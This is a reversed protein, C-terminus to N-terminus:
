VAHQQEAANAVLAASKQDLIQVIRNSKASLVSHILLLPIAVVLGVVTTILALSIGGSMLRPDGTGFLTITQFTKIIGIVTGLLGLLPAIAAMLSLAGLGRQIAPLERLIAEDLRLGLAEPDNTARQECAMLIRGLPNNVNPNIDQLQRRVQRGVISLALLREISIALGIVGLGIIVYGVVGGQQLRTLLDPTQGVLELLAGRTPDIAVPVVGLATNELRKAMQQYSQAPQSVPEVTKATQPWYRLYKGRSLLNFTGIRIVPRDEQEGDSSTVTASFRIVKGSDVIMALMVEWLRVLDDESPIENSKSLTRLAQRYEPHQAAILSTKAVGYTDETVHHVITSLEDLAGMVEELRKQHDDLTVKFQEYAQTLQAGRAKEKTLQDLAQQLLTKQSDRTEIFKRERERVQQKEQIREQQVLNLLDELTKPTAALEGALCLLLVVFWIKRM